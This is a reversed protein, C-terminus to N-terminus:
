QNKRLKEREIKFKFYHYQLYQFIIALCLNKKILRTTPKYIYSFTIYIISSVYNKFLRIYGGFIKKMEKSKIM